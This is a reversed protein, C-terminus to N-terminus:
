GPLQGSLDELQEFRFWFRDEHAPIFFRDLEKSEFRVEYELEARQADYRINSVQGPAGPLLAAVARGVRVEAGLGFRGTTPKVQTVM